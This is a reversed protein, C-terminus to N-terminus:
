RFEPFFTSEERIADRRVHESARRSSTHVPKLIAVLVTLVPAIALPRRPPLGSSYTKPVLESFFFLLATFRSLCSQWPCPM